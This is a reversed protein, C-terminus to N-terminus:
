LRWKLLPQSPAINKAFESMRLYVHGLSEKLEDEDEDKLLCRFTKDKLRAAAFQFAKSKQLAENALGFGTDCITIHSLYRVNALRVTQARWHHVLRTEAKEFEKYLANLRAGLPAEVGEGNSFEGDLDLYWFPNSWFLRLCDKFIIMSAFSGLISYRINPPLRSVTNDFDEQVVWGKLSEIVDKKQEKSLAECKSRRSDICYHLGWTWCDWTRLKLESEWKGLRLEPWGDWYGDLFQHDNRIANNEARRIELARKLEEICKQQEEYTLAPEVSDEEDEVWWPIEGNQKKIM